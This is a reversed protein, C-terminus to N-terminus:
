GGRHYVPCLLTGVWVVTSLSVWPGRKSWRESWGVNMWVLIVAEEAQRESESDFRGQLMESAM